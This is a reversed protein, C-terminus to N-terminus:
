ARGRTRCRVARTGERIAAHGAETLHISRASRDILSLQLGDELEKLSKSIAPQSLNLAAAAKTFGGQDVVATFLRLHHLNLMFLWRDHNWSFLTSAEHNRLEAVTVSHGIPELIEDGADDRRNDNTGGRDDEAPTFFRDKSARDDLRQHKGDEDAHDNPRNAAIVRSSSGPTRNTALGTSSTATKRRPAVISTGLNNAEPGISATPM